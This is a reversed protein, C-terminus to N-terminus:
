PVSAYEQMKILHAQVLDNNKAMAALQASAILGYAGSANLCKIVDAVPYNSGLAGNGHRRTVQIYGTHTFDNLPGWANKKMQSLTPQYAGIAAEIEETMDGFHKEIGRKEFRELEADTACHLLWLGRVLSEILVRMLAHMSGFLKSDCLIAIAAQHEIAVDFCASAIQERHGGSIEIGKTNEDIWRILDRLSRFQADIDM